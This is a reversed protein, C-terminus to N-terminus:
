YEVRVQGTCAAELGQQQFHPGRVAWQCISCTPASNLAGRNHIALEHQWLAEGWAQVMTQQAARIEPNASAPFTISVDEAAAMPCILLNIAAAAACIGMGLRDLPTPATPLEGHNRAQSAIVSSRRLPGSALLLASATNSQNPMKPGHHCRISCNMGLANCRLM